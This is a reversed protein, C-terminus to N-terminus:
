GRRQGLQGPTPLEIWAEAGYISKVFLMLSKLSAQSRRYEQEQQYYFVLALPQNFPHIRDQRSTSELTPELVSSGPDSRDGRSAERGM